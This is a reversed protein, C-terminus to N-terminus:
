FCFIFPESYFDTSPNEKFLKLIYFHCLDSKGVYKSIHKQVM